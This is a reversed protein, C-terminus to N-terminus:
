APPPARLPDAPEEELCDETGMPYADIIRQWEGTARLQALGKNFADVLAKANPRDMPVALHLPTHGVPQGAYSLGEKGGPTCALAHRVLFENGIFVDLRGHLMMRLCSEVDPSLIEEVDGSQVLASVARNLAFGLPNCLRLGRVSEPSKYERGSQVTFVAVTKVEILPDSFIFRKLRADTVQYPFTADYRGAATGELGRLWPEFVVPRTNLGAAAFSARVIRSLMGGDPLGSGVLPAYSPGSVLRISSVEEAFASPGALAFVTMLLIAARCPSLRVM